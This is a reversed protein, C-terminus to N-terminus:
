ELIHCIEKLNEDNRCVDKLDSYIFELQKINKLKYNWIIESPSNEIILKKTKNEYLSNFGYDM